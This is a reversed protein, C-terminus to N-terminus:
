LNNVEYIKKMYTAHVATKLEFQFIYYYLIYPIRFEFLSFVKNMTSKGYFSEVQKFSLMTM